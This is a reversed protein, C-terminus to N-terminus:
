GAKGAQKQPCRTGGGRVSNRKLETASLEFPIGQERACAKLFVTIAANMSLGIASFVQEADRKVSDEVRVNIQAM